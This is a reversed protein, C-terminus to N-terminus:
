ITVERKIGRGVVSSIQYIRVVLSSQTSGFDTVQQAATYTTTPTTLGTISRAVAAGDMIDVEYEETTEGIAVDVTTNWDSAGSIRTRRVWDIVIDAAVNRTGTVQVPSYPHLGVATNTFTQEVGSTLTQGISISKYFRSVDINDVGPDFRSINTQTLIVFQDDIAHSAMHQDTGKLGRLLHSLTYTGDGELTADRFSIIEWRGDAGIAAINVLALFNEETATTLEGVDLTINVTNGRDVIWTSGNPVGLADTAVGTVTLGICAFSQIWTVGEDNSQYIVAGRYTDNNGGNVAIYFGSNDNIDLLIPLDLFTAVTDTILYITQPIFSADSGSAFSTYVEIDEAELTWKVLIGDQEREVIRATYVNDGNASELTIVDAPELEGYYISVSCSFTNRTAWALWHLVEAIQAAKWSDLVLGGFNVTEVLVSNCEGRTSKEEGDQYDLAFDRYRVTLTLPIEEEQKRTVELADPLTGGFDHVSLHDLPVAYEPTRGRKVCKLM